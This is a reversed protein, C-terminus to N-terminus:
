LKTRVAAYFTFFIEFCLKYIHKYCKTMCIEHPQNCFNLLGFLNEMAMM